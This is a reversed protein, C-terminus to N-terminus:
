TGTGKTGGASLEGPRRQWAARGKAIMDHTNDAITGLFLHAPNICPPTDCRHLVCLGEPIPGRHFEWSARHALVTRRGYVEYLSLIGYGNNTGSLWLWCGTNPEPVYRELPHGRVKRERATKIRIRQCGCSQSKGIYQRVVETERGCDCRCRFYQHGHPDRKGHGLVVLHGHREGPTPDPARCRGCSLHRASGLDSTRVPRVTGCDCECLVFMARRSGRHSFGRVTWKGFRAGAQCEELKPM